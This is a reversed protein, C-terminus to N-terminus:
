PDLEVPPILFEGVAQPPIAPPYGLNTDVRVIRGAIIQITTIMFGADNIFAIAYEGRPYNPDSYAADSVSYVAYVKAAEVGSWSDIEDKRIFHGEPGLFPLVEVTEGEAEGAACKPPGGLGDEFTCAAVTYRVLSRLTQIDGELVTQIILDLEDVGTKVERGMAEAATVTPSTSATVAPQIAASASPPVPATSTLPTPGAPAPVSPSCGAAFFIVLLTLIIQPTFQRSQKM